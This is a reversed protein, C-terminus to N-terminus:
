AIAALDLTLCARMSFCGAAMSRVQRSTATSLLTMAGVARPSVLQRQAPRVTRVTPATDVPVPPVAFLCTMSSSCFSHPVTPHPSNSRTLSQIVRIEPRQQTGTVRSRLAHMHSPHFVNCAV